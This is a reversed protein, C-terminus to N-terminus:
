QLPVQAILYLMPLATDSKTLEDSLAKVAKKSAGEKTKLFLCMMSFFKDIFSRIEISEILYIYM